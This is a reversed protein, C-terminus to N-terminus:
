FHTNTKKSFVEHSLTMGVVRYTHRNGEKKVLSYQLSSQRVVWFAESNRLHKGPRCPKPKHQHYNEKCHEAPAFTKHTSPAGHYLRLSPSKETFLAIWSSFRQSAKDWPGLRRRRLSILGEHRIHLSWQRQCIEKTIFLWYRIYCRLQM